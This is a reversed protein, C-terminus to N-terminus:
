DSWYEANKQRRSDIWKRGEDIWGKDPDDKFFERFGSKLKPWLGDNDKATSRLMQDLYRVIEGGAKYLPNLMDGRDAEIRVKRAQEELLKAQAAASTANAVNLQGQTASTLAAVRNLAEASESEESKQGVLAEEARQLEIQQKASAAMIGSQVASPKDVSATAGSPTVAPSGLALVRNLGATHLDRAARTYATGAMYEQWDRTGQAYGANKRDQWESQAWDLAAAGVTEWFM